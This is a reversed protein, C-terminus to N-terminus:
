VEVYVGISVAFQYAGDLVLLARTKGAERALRLLDRLEEAGADPTPDSHSSSRVAGGSMSDFEVNGVFELGHEECVRGEHKVAMIHPAHRIRAFDVDEIEADTLGIWSEPDEVVERAYCNLCLIEGDTVHYYNEWTYNEVHLKYCGDCRFYGEPTGYDESHRECLGVVGKPDDSFIDYYEDLRVAPRECYECEVPEGDLKGTKVARELQKRHGEEAAANNMAIIDPLSWM